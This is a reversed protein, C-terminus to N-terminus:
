LGHGTDNELEFPLQLTEDYAPAVRDLKLKFDGWQESLQMVTVVKTLLDKLRPDGVDPTLLRHLHHAPRGDANKKAKDKLEKWVGPALRRYVVDNTLHGFYPPRKVSSPDFALGRLRFMEEYFEAPFKRVWPRLEKAVFAELIKALADRARDKQYGTAEDVLAIIGVRAFGRVLVECEKAIPNSAAIAGAQRASLVSECIDALITAPYGFAPKGGHPPVFRIPQKLMVTLDNVVFPKIADQDFFAIHRADGSRTSGGSMGIGAILGRQSLVRTGDELVYCPIETDGIRLPKDSSGHTAKPLIARERKAEVGKDSIAKREEPSLKAARAAGGKAKGTPETM